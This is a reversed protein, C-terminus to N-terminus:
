IGRNVTEVFQRWAALWQGRRLMRLGERWRPGRRAPPNVQARGALWLRAHLERELHRLSERLEIERRVQWGSEPRGLLGNLDFRELWAEEQELYRSDDVIPRLPDKFLAMIEGDGRRRRQEIQRRKQLIAPLTEWVDDVAALQNLADLVRDRVQPDGLELGHRTEKWPYFGEKDVGSFIVARKIAMVLALPLLKRFRPEEYNKLATLLANRHMLYRVKESPRKRFSAHGRHFVRSDPEFAVQYGASWLRWGLDVDEYIAFYDADFGGLGLFVERAVLMAGGCPFLVRDEHSVEQALKGVDRQLAYGLYQLSSGNYDIRQGEWDLIRSAVCPTSDDLHPLAAQLWDPHARMDNNIFALVPRRAQEAARNCPHAFGLNDPNRILVADPHRRRVFEPSGDTSGNDVVILEGPELARLSPLLRELHERGNWNITIVSVDSASRFM